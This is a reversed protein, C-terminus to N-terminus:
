TGASRDSCAPVRQASISGRMAGLSVSGTRLLGKADPKKPVPRELRRMAAPMSVRMM